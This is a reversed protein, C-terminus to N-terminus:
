ATGTYSPSEVELLDLAACTRGQDEVRTWPIGEAVYEATLSHESPAAPVGYRQDAGERTKSVCGFANGELEQGRIRTKKRRTDENKHARTCAM